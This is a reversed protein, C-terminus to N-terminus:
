TQIEAFRRKGVQYIARSGPTIHIKHDSLKKGDIKVAGQKIMRMADSTSSVLGSMKLVNAILMGKEPVDLMVTEIDDPVVGKRFQNIFGKRAKDALENTHFRAVIEEALKFKIDRPNEGEQVALKYGEIEDLSKFSLLEFYRWMLDDSISMLKGFMDEPPEDIGIYNGLSKSMKNNGDLGELLPMTLVIQPEQDYSQQLQRGVLLNFKQDTGGLEVDAEMAVSDYGQVLPYLFEHVAIAQGSAYRKQFDDRELMRAVTHRSALQILGQAGLKQMWISNFMIQTKEPDLIKFIQKEYTKANDSIQETSLPPRTSNKGSPDGILGTFDGILFLVEHGLEQFQRLKNILVTHGLHLDPATPDFGAKIRLPRSQSLKNKLDKMPLIEDAGRMIIALQDEVSKLM